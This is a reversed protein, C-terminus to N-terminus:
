GTGPLIFDASDIHVAGHCFQLIRGSFHPHAHQVRKSITLEGASIVGRQYDHYIENWDNTCNYCFVTATVRIKLIRSHPM